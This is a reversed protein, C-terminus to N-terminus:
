DNISICIYMDFARPNIGPSKIKKLKQLLAKM